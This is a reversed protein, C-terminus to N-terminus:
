EEEEGMTVIIFFPFLAFFLNDRELVFCNNRPIFKPMGQSPFAFLFIFRPIGDHVYPINFLELITLCKPM